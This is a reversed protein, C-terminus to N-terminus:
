GLGKLTRALVARKLTTLEKKPLKKEGEGKKQLTKITKTLTKAPIPKDKVGLEKRLAGPKKIAKAIWKEQESLDSLVQQASKGQLVQDILAFIDATTM